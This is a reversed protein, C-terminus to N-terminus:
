ATGNAIGHALWEVCIRGSHLVAVLITIVLAALAPTVMQKDM